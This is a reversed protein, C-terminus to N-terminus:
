RGGPSALSVRMQGPLPVARVQPPAPHCTDILTPSQPRSVHCLLCCRCKAPSRSLMYVSATSDAGNALLTRITQVRARHTARSECYARDVVKGKGEVCM